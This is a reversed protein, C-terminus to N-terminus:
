YIAFYICLLLLIIRSIINFLPFEVTKEETSIEQSEQQKAINRAAVILAILIYLTSNYAVNVFFGCVVYGIFGISIAMGMRAAAIQKGSRTSMKRLEWVTRLTALIVMLFLLLGFIGTEAAIQVFMSHANLEYTVRDLGHKFAYEPVSYTFEGAGVGTLPNDRFMHTGVRWAAARTQYTVEEQYTKITQYREIVKDSVKGVLFVGILILFLYKKIMPKHLFMLLIVVALGLLGGRSGTRLGILGIILVYGISEIQHLPKKESFAFYIAFPLVALLQQAFYNRDWWDFPVTMWYYRAVFCLAGYSIIMVWMFIKLREETTILNVMMFFILVIKYFDMYQHGFVTVGASWRSICMMFFLGVLLYIQPVIKVEKNRRHLFWSLLVIIGTIKILNLPHLNDYVRHFDFTSFIFFYILGWFPEKFTIGWMIITVLLLVVERYGM